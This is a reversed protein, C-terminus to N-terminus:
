ALRCPATDYLLNSILSFQSNSTNIFDHQHCNFIMRVVMVGRM